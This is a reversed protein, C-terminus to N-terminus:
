AASTRRPEGSPACDSAPGAARRARRRVPSVGDFQGPGVVRDSGSMPTVTRCRSASRTWSGSWTPTRIVTRRRGADSTSPGARRACASPACPVEVVDVAGDGFAEGPQERRQPQGGLRGASPVGCRARRSRRGARCRRRPRREVQRSQPAARRVRRGARAWRRRRGGALGHQEVELLRRLEAHARVPQADAGGTGALALQQAGEHEAEGGGVRRLVQAQDQHVVLAARRERREGFQRVDGPHDGVQLVVGPQDLADM